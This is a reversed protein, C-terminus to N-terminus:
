VATMAEVPRLKRVKVAPYFATLLTILLVVGAGIIISLVSLQPFMREPLGYVKMMESIVIGHVQFYWTVLCGAIIGAGIGMLTMATSELLLLRSLRGPTTGVALLVGFERTREFIAMLFTNLISFAVVVVLIVYFILGSVLDMQIGQVLGPMLEQWDLTVLGDSGIGGIGTSVAKKVRPLDDLSTGLAVVEHVAGRMSYVDQFSALPIHIATRDFEDQGSSFIGKVRVSTAAISGDRGQGLVVLEDGLGIRLNRALLEGVLAADTDGESLYSGKRILDELTSVQAELKPDIGVVLAGYTRDASSIMSFANARFTYATIGDIGELVRGVAAPEPVVLWMDRKDNYGSAQVQLHGTRIKVAFEIMTDYSGFQWSLMFILLLSAFAVAAMTLISRRPHRWINRWAMKVDISM